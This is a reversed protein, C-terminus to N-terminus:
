EEIKQFVKLLNPMLEERFTQYFEARFDDSILSRYKPGKKIVKKIELSTIPRNVNEIEEKDLRPLNYRRLLREMEELNDM